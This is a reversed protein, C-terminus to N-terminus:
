IANDTLDKMLEEVSHFSKASIKGCSINEAEEMAALTEANPYNKPTELCQIYKKSVAKFKNKTNLILVELIKKTNYVMERM